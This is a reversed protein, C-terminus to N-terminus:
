QYVSDLVAFYALVAIQAESTNVFSAMFDGVHTEIEYIIVSNQVTDSVTHLILWNGCELDEVASQVVEIDGIACFNDRRVSGAISSRISRM